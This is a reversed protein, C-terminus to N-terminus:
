FLPMAMALPLESTGIDAGGFPPECYEFDTRVGVGRSFSTRLLSAGPSLWASNSLQRPSSHFTPPPRISQNDNLGPFTDLSYARTMIHWCGVTSWQCFALKERGDRGALAYRRRVSWDKRWGSDSCIRCVDNVSALFVVFSETKTPGGDSSYAGYGRTGLLM